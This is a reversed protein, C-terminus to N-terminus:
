LGGRSKTWYQHHFGNFIPYSSQAPIIVLLARMARTMGVFLTRRSRALLEQREEKTLAVPLVAYRSKQFGALAVVPFELGKSSHMTM